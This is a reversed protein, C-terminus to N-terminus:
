QYFIIIGSKGRNKMRNGTPCLMKILVNTGHRILRESGAESKIIEEGNRFMTSVSVNIFCPCSLLHIEWVQITELDSQSINQEMAFANKFLNAGFVIAEKGCEVRRQITLGECLPLGLLFIDMINGKTDQQLQTLM